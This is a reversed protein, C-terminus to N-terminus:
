RYRESTPFHTATKNVQEFTGSNKDCKKDTSIPWSQDHPLSDSQLNM